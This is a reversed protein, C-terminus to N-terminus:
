IENKWIDSNCKSTKRKKDVYQNKDENKKNYMYLPKPKNGFKKKTHITLLQM